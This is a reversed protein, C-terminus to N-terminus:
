SESDIFGLDPDLIGSVHPTSLVELFHHKDLSYKMVPILVPFVLM